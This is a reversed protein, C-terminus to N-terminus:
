LAVYDKYHEAIDLIMVVEGKEFWSCEEVSPIQWERCLVELVEKGTGADKRYLRRGRTDIHFDNEELWSLGLMMDRQGIDLVEVNFDFDLLENFSLPSSSRSRNTLLPSSKRYKLNRKQRKSPSSLSSSNLFKFSTNVVQKGGKLTGGDAQSIRAALVRKLMGLKRGIRPSVVPGSAATDIVAEM